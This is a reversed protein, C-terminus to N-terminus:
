KLFVLMLCGGRFAAINPMDIVSIPHSNGGGPGWIDVEKCEKSGLPRAAGLVAMDGREANCRGPRDPFLAAGGSREGERVIVCPM